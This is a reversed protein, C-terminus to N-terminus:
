FHYVILQSRGEFLDTLAEKGRPGEFAYPKEVPTWPLQRREEALAERARSFAKEKALLDTRARLWEPRSVIAHTKMAQPTSSGTADPLAADHERSGHGSGGM